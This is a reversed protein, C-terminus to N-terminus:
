DSFVIMGIKHNHLLQLIIKTLAKVAPVRTMLSAFLDVRGSSTKDTEHSRVCTMGKDAITQTALSM